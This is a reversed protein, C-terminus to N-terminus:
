GRGSSAIDASMRQLLKGYGCEVIGSARFDIGKM